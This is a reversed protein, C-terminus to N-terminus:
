FFLVNTPFFVPLRVKFRGENAYIASLLAGM